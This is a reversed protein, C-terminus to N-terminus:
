FTSDGHSLVYFSRPERGPLFAFDTVLYGSAFLDEFIARIHLRWRL